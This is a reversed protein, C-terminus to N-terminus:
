AEILGGRSHPPFAEGAANAIAKAGPKLSVAEQILRFHVIIPEGDTGKQQKM